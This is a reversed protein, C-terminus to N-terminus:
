TRCVFGLHGNGIAYSSSDELDQSALTVLVNAIHSAVWALPVDVFEDFLKASKPDVNLM